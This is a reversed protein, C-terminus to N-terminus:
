GQFNPPIELKPFDWIHRQCHLARQHIIYAPYFGYYLCDEVWDPGTGTYCWYALDAAPKRHWYLVGYSIMYLSIAFISTIAIHKLRKM